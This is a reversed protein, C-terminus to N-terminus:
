IVEAVARLRDSSSSPVCLSLTSKQSPPSPRLLCAHPAGPPFFTALRLPPVTTPTITRSSFLLSGRCSLLGSHVGQAVLLPVSSLTHSSSTPRMERSLMSSSSSVSHLSGLSSFFVVGVVGGRAFSSHTGM